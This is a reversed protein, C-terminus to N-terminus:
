DVKKVRNEGRGRVRKGEGSVSGFERRALEVAEGEDNCSGVRFRM